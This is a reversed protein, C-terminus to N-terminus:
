AQERQPLPELRNRLWAAYRDWSLAFPWEASLAPLAETNFRMGPEGSADVPELSRFRCHCGLRPGLATAMRGVFGGVTEVYGSPACRLLGRGGAVQRAFRAYAEALYDVHVFDRVLYPQRLEPTEDRLWAAVLSATLGPKELPGFPHPVVFKGVALGRAEARYRLQHWTLTKALGYPSFAGREPSGEGEDAEFISGTVIVGHGGTAAFADLAEETGQLNARVAADVDFDPSRHERTEAGHLCLLRFPGRTRLTDLFLRDGPSCGDLLAEATGAAMALRRRALGEYTEFHQRSLVTVAIGHRELARAFWAGTFSSAGTLLARMVM